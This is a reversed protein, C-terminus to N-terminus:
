NNLNGLSLCLGSVWYNQDQVGNSDFNFTFNDSHNTLQVDRWSCTHPLSPILIPVYWLPWWNHLWEITGWCKTSCSPENDCEQALCIWDVSGRGIEALYIKINDVLRRRPRELPRKGELKAVLFAHRTRANRISLLGGAISPLQSYV